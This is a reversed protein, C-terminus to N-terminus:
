KKTKTTTQNKCALHYITYPVTTTTDNNDNKQMVIYLSLKIMKQNKYNNPKQLGLPIHSRQLLTTTIMKRCLLICFVMYSRPLLCLIIICCSSIFMYQSLFLTLSIFSHVCSLSLVKSNNLGLLLCVLSSSM